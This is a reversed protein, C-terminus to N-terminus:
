PKRGARSVRYGYAVDLGRLLAQYDRARGPSPGPPRRRDTFPTARLTDLGATAGIQHGFNRSFHIVEIRGDVRAWEVLLEITSDRGGDNVIVVETQCPVERM